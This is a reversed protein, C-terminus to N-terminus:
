AAEWVSVPRTHSHAVRSHRYGTHRVKGSRKARLAVAGWARRDPPPPFGEKEAELWVDETTFKGCSLSFEVFRSLARESWNGNVRDAKRAAREAGVDMLSAGVCLSVLPGFLALQSM